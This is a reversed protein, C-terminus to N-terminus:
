KSDMILEPDSFTHPRSHFKLKKINLNFTSNIDEQNNFWDSHSFTGPGSSSYRESSKSGWRGNFSLWSHDNLHDPDLYTMKERCNLTPGKNDTLDLLPTWSKRIYFYKYIWEPTLIRRHITGAIPYNAHTNLAVYALPQGQPTVPIDQTLWTEENAHASYYVGYVKSGDPSVRVTIHEFDGEHFGVGFRFFLRNILKSHTFAQGNFPFFLIYNIEIARGQDIYHPHTYCTASSIDGIRIMDENQDPIKLALDKEALSKPIIEGSRPQWEALNQLNLSGAPVVPNKQYRLEVQNVYWDVSSPLYSEQSHFYFVPAYRQAIDQLTAAQVFSSSILCFFYFLHIFSRSLQRIM